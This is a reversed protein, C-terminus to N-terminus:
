PLNSCHDVIIKPLTSSTARSKKHDDSAKYIYVILIIFATVYMYYPAFSGTGLHANM